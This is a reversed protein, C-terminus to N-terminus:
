SGDGGRAARAPSYREQIALIERAGEAAAESVAAFAELHERLNAKGRFLGAATGAGFMNDFFEDLIGCQARIGEAAGKGEYLSQDQVRASARGAEREYAEMQDADCFDFELEHGLINM